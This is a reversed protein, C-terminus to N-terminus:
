VVLGHIHPRVEAAHADEYAAYEIDHDVQLRSTKMLCRQGLAPDGAEVVSAEVQELAIIRIELKGLTLM